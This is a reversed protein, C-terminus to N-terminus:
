RRHFELPRQRVRIENHSVGARLFGSSWIGVAIQPDVAYFCCCRWFTSRAAVAHVFATSVVLASNRSLCRVFYTGAQQVICLISYFM